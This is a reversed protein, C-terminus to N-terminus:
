AHHGTRHARRLAGARAGVCLDDAERDVHRGVTRAEAGPCRTVWRRRRLGHRRAARGHCRDPHQGRQTDPPSRGRRVAGFRIRAPGDVPSLQRLGPEGSPAGDGRADVAGRRGRDNRELAPVDPPPSAPPTGLLNELVWKGRLVPSTRNPYATVALISAHGLLGRRAGDPVEVRRFHSGYVHPMGYHRALRENVFTYDATLLDLVSRDGRFVSSVFLETERRMAQRLDDGFDPFLDEDPVIAPVNRLYLWQGAFNTVLARSRDDALMRRTQRELVEPERMRGAIALDLLEDDPISSWLFFSLRSALELDGIAYNTDAAIEAPDREVRLLFEPSALLWRLVMEIGADFGGDELGEDFFELLVDTDAPTVPRRFARRALGSLIEAACATQDEGADSLPRCVFIRQRSPTEEMPPAGSADFPGTVSVSGLYPQYRTDGGTISTYPRLYPQRLTEPYAWTKRLFTLRVERTGAKVPVRVEWDRDINRQRERWARYADSSRPTDAPPPEGVTFTQVPTGDLSVELTHPVTFVALVDGADRSLRVRLVYDADEPFTYRFAGGGRTGFPMGDVWDDQPLDSALRFTETTASLAPRGVALRSIKRAAALYRELLAPSIGLVGAINDFGYSSGDAPLLESVDVELALLDRVANHYETRNLRHFAETRGPDLDAVAAQDLESELWTIFRDYTATDPRPRALPPMGGARLKRVVTEWVAPADGVRTVDHSDLMLGATRLQSNHCTVCYRDLLAQQWSDSPPALSQSAAQPGGADVRLSGVALAGVTLLILRCRTPM